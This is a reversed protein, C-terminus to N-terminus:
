QLQTIYQQLEDLPISRVKAKGIQELLIFRMETGARKKDMKLTNFVKTKNYPYAIPLGYRSLLDAVRETEIFNELEESLKCAAVMGLSIAHGHLMKYHTEIAHGLTHGFNLLRREGTEFEDSQVVKTKIEANKRILPQVDVNGRRYDKLVYKELERFLRADKIAAHKIVEAFGNEWQEVPLSKLFSSDYFLFSPQRIIGVLNKYLGVDIGNKGGISADVMALITTPVFGFEIGRMYISAAYGTIDTVVGGGVGVLISNRDAEFRILERIVFDVTRQNKYKEGAPIVITNRNSFKQKQAKLVNADTLFIAKKKGIVKDITKFDADFLYRVESNTFRYTSSRM